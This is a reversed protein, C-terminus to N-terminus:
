STPAPFGVMLFNRTLRAIAQKRAYWANYKFRETAMFGAETAKRTQRRQRRQDNIKAHKIPDAKRKSDHRRCAARLCLRCQRGLPVIVTNEATFEHGHKCHTKRANRAAQNNSRLVNVRQTVPELHDPNVCSTNRCLHDITLGLPIPGKLLEYSVRHAKRNKGNLKFHGYGLRLKNGAWEWCGSSENKRVFRM